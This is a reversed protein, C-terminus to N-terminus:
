YVYIKIFWLRCIHIGLDLLGKGLVLIDTVSYHTFFYTWKIRLRKFPLLSENTHEGVGEAAM